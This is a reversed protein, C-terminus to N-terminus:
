QMWLQALIRGLLILWKDNQSEGCSCHEPQFM